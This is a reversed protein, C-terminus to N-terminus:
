HQTAGLRKTPFQVVKARRTEVDSQPPDEADLLTADGETCAERVFQWTTGNARWSQKILSSRMDSEGVRHWGIQVTVEAKDGPLFKIDILDWDAIQITRGWRHHTKLFQAREAPVVREAAVETRGFRLAVNFDLAAERALATSNLASGCAALNIVLLGIQLIRM